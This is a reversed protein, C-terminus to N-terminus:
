EINTKLINLQSTVLKKLSDVRRVEIPNDSILNGLSDLSTKIAPLAENYPDLFVSKNTATFGRMGTEADVMHQLLDTSNHIVLQTHNVWKNDDQLKQISNYSLIAVIFVLVVSFAFGVLVRQRFSLKLM